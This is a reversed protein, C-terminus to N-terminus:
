GYQCSFRLSLSLSLGQATHCFPPSELQTSESLYLVDPVASALDNRHEACDEPRTEDSSQLSQKM